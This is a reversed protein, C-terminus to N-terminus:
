RAVRASFSESTVGGMRGFDVGLFFEVGGAVWRVGWGAMSRNKKFVEKSKEECERCEGGWAEIWQM